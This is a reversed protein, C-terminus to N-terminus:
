WGTCQFISRAEEPTFSDKKSPLEQHHSRTGPIPAIKRHKRWNNFDVRWLYHSILAFLPPPKLNPIGNCVECPFQKDSHKKKETTARWDRLCVLINASVNWSYQYRTSIVDQTPIETNWKDSQPRSLNATFKCVVNEFQNERMSLVTNKNLKFKNGTTCHALVPESLAKTKQRMYSDSPRSSFLRNGTLLVCTKNM